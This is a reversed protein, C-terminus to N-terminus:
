HPQETHLFMQAMNSQSWGSVRRVLSSLWGKRLTLRFVKGWFGIVPSHTQRIRRSMDPEASVCSAGLCLQSSPDSTQAVALHITKRKKQVGNGNRDSRPSRLGYALQTQPRVGAAKTNQM